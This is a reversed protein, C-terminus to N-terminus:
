DRDQRKLLAPSIAPAPVPSPLPPQPIVAQIRSPAGGCGSLLPNAASPAGHKIEIVFPQDSCARLSAGNKTVLAVRGSLVKIRVADSPIDVAYVDGPKITHGAALDAVRLFGTISPPRRPVDSTLRSRFPAYAVFGVLLLVLGLALGAGARRRRRPRVLADHGVDDTPKPLSDAAPKSAIDAAARAERKNSGPKRELNSEILAEAEDILKMVDARDADLDRYLEKLAAESVDYAPSSPEPESM